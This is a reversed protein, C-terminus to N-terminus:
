CMKLRLHKTQEEHSQSTKRGNREHLDSLKQNKYGRNDCSDQIKFYNGVTCTKRQLLKSSLVTSSIKFQFCASKRM